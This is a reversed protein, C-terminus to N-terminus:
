LRLREELSAATRPCSRSCFGDAEDSSDVSQFQNSFSSLILSQDSRSFTMEFVAEDWSFNTESSFKSMCSDSFKRERRMMLSSSDSVAERWSFNAPTTSIGSSFIRQRWLIWETLIRKTSVGFSSATGECTRDENEFNMAESFRDNKSFFFSVTANESITKQCTQSFVRCQKEMWTGPFGATKRGPTYSRMSELSILPSEDDFSM